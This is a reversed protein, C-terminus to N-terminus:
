KGLQTIAADRHRLNRAESISKFEQSNPSFHSLKDNTEKKDVNAFSEGHRLFIFQSKSTLSLPNTPSGCLSFFDQNPTNLKIM